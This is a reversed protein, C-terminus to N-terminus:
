QLHYEEEELFLNYIRDLDDANYYSIEIKGKKLNGKLNVRTGLKQVLRQEMDSLMPDLNKRQKPTAVGARSGENLSGALAEAERVSLGKQIIRKFLVRQDAPNMISLIARAHGASMEGQELASQMDEPLQLLRMSNAITSRSKGIQQSLEVQSMGSKILLAKYARAEEMANLDERQVNEIIAIEYRESETLKKVIVPIASLGAMKAARYRREGAVIRYTGGVREALIPQIVGRACISARLEELAEQNFVQRPQNPDRKILSLPIMEVLTGSPATVRRPTYTTENPAKATLDNSHSQEKPTSELPKETEELSQTSKKTPKIETNTLSSTSHSRKSVSNTNKPTTTSTKPTTNKSPSEKKVEDLPFDQALDGILAGLGKGLGTRKASM